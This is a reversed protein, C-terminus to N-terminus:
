SEPRDRDADEAFGPAHRRPNKAPGQSNTPLTSVAAVVGERAFDAEAFDLDLEHGLIGSKGHREARDRHGFALHDVLELARGGFRRTKRAAITESEPLTLALGHRHRQDVAGQAGRSSPSSTIAGAWSSSNTIDCESL